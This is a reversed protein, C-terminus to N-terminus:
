VEADEGSARFPPRRDEAWSPPAPGGDVGEAVGKEHRRPTMPRGRGDLVPVSENWDDPVPLDHPRM